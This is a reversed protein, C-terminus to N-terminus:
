VQFFDLELSAFFKEDTNKDKKCKFDSKPYELKLKDILNHCFWLNVPLIKWMNFELELNSEFYQQSYRLFSRPENVVRKQFPVPNPKNIHTICFQEPKFIIDSYSKTTCKSHLSHQLHVHQHDQTQHEVLHSIKLTTIASESVIDLSLTLRIGRHHIYILHIYVGARNKLYRKLSFNYQKPEVQNQRFICKACISLFPANETVPLLAV